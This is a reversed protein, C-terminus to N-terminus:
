LMGGYDYARKRLAARITPDPYDRAINLIDSTRAERYAYHAEEPTYFMGLSKSRYTALYKKHRCRPKIIVGTPLDQDRAVTDRIQIRSNLWPEIFVCTDPGYVRNGFFLLDKDLVKNEYDQSLMWEEFTSFRHWVPDVSCGIYHPKRTQMAISYCRELMARWVQYPHYKRVTNPSDQIGVGFVLPRAEITKQTVTVAYNGTVM